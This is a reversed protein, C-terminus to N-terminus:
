EKERCGHMKGHIRWWALAAMLYWGAVTMWTGTGQPIRTGHFMLGAAVISFLAYAFTIRTHGYRKACRQYAHDVHPTWWREGRMIRWLLTFGADIAFASVPLLAWGWAVPRTTLAVGLLLAMAYGLGGSGVDGLFIRARPFNFPFFGACAAALGAALWNWPPPLVLALGAAAILAQSVALGNIGDMFNWANVLFMALLFVVVAQWVTGSAAGVAIALLLAAVAQVALRSWPSLPRHDDWWGIAAVLTLGVVFASLLGRQAPYAHILWASGLLLAVVIAIGGGRPTAVAHSRREGPQDFLQRRLAYRRALATGAAAVAFHLLVWGGGALMLRGRLEAAAQGHGMGQLQSM